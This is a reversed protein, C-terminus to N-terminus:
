KSCSEGKPAKYEKSSRHNDRIWRKAQKMAEEGYFYQITEITAFLCNGIRAPEDGVYVSVCVWDDKAIIEHYMVTRKKNQAPGM